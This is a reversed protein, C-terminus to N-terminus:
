GITAVPTAVLVADSVTLDGGAEFCLLTVDSGAGAVEVTGLLALPVDQNASEPDFEASDITLFGATRRLTCSTQATGASSASLKAQVVYRGAPLTKALVQRTGAGTVTHTDDAVTLASVIGAPGQAGPAGAAGAPGAPGGPGAPGVAGTAGTPGAKGALSKVTAASLDSATLSRNKVDAGTVSSNKLDAGTVSSNKIQAGTILKAATATGGLALFLALLAIIGAPRPRPLRKPM